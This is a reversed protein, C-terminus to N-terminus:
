DFFSRRYWTTGPAEDAPELVHGGGEAEIFLRDKSSGPDIRCSLADDQERLCRRQILATLRIIAQTAPLDLRYSEGYSMESIYQSIELVPVGGLTAAGPELRATIRFADLQPDENDICEEELPQLLEHWPEPLTPRPIAVLEASGCGRTSGSTDNMPRALTPFPLDDLAVSLHSPSARALILTSAFLSATLLIAILRPANM